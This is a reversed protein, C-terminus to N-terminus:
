MGLAAKFEVAQREAAHKSSLPRSRLPPQGKIEIVAYWDDPGEMQERREVAITKIDAVRLTQRVQGWLFRRDIALLGPSLTLVAAPTFLGAYVSAAGISMGGLMIFGFFPTTVNLPWVGRWLEYAAMVLAFLGAATFIARQFKSNPLDYHLMTGSM